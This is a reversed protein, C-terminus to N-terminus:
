DDKCIKNNGIRALVKIEMILWYIVLKISGEKASENIKAIPFSEVIKNGIRINLKEQQPWQM